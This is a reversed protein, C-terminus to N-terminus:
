PDILESTTKTTKHRGGVAQEPPDTGTHKLTQPIGLVSTHTHTGRPVTPM